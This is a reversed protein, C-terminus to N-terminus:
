AGGPAVVQEQKLLVLNHRLSVKSKAKTVCHANM